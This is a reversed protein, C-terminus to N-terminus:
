KSNYLISCIEMAARPCDFKDNFRSISFRISNEPSGGLAKIVHSENVNEGERKLGGSFIIDKAQFESAVVELCNKGHLKLNIVGPLRDEYNGNVETKDCHQKFINFIRETLKRQRKLEGDLFRFCIEVAKGFGVIAPVNLSGARMGREKMDGHLFPELSLGEKIYVAGIGKPGHMRHASLTMFDIDLEDVDFRIKGFSHTGSCHYLADYKKTLKAIEEVPQITGIEGNAMEVSVLGVDGKKLEEELHRLDIKGDKNVEILTCNRTEASKIISNHEISSVLVRGKESKFNKIIWNNGETEGSTFYINEPFNGIRDAIMRRSNDVAARSEEGLFHYDEDPNGYSEELYAQMAMVVEEDMVSTTSNDMYHEM